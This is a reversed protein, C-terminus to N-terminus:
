IMCDLKAEVSIQGDYTHAIAPIKLEIIGPGFGFFNPIHHIEFYDALEIKLEGIKLMKKKPQNFKECGAIAFILMAVVTTKCVTRWRM